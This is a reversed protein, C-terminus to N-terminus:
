LEYYQSFALKGEGDTVRIRFAGNKDDITFEARSILEGEPAYVTEAKRTERIISIKKAPSCEVAVTNGERTISHIEAGTSAYFDGSELANMIASYSLEPADIMVFGGFSDCEPTGFKQWNHNDDCATVFVRKGARRMQDVALEDTPLGMVATGHNYIEVAFLGEYGTFHRADELSWTPHNYSVIFGCRKAEAIIESIGEASYVREYEGEYQVKDRINDNLYHDYVSNYCPTVLNDPTKAYFNMHVVRMDTKVLTSERPSEKIAVECGNIALFEGDTLNSNDLVHEHDTFAVVSYGRAMYEEKVMEPTMRGDSNCTHCHLNAKYFKGNKGLLKEM